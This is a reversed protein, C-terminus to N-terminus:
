GDQQGAERDGARGSCGGDNIESGGRPNGRDTLRRKRCLPDSGAHNAAADQRHDVKGPKADVASHVVPLSVFDVVELYQLDDERAAGEDVPERHRLQKVLAVGGEVLDAEILDVGVRRHHESRQVRAQRFRCRV